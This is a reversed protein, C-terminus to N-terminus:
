QTSCYPCHWLRALKKVMGQKVDKNAPNYMVLKHGVRFHCDKSHQYYKVREHRLGNDYLFWDM